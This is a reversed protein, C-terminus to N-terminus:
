CKLVAVMYGVSIAAWDLARVVELVIAAPATGSAGPVCRIDGCCGLGSWKRFAVVSVSAQRRAAIDIFALVQLRGLAGPVRVAISTRGVYDRGVALSPARVLASFREVMVFSITLLRAIPRNQRLADCDLAAVEVQSHHVLRESVLDM